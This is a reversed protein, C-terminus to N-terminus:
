VGELNPKMMKMMKMKHIKKNCFFKPDIKRSGLSPFWLSKEPDWHDFDILQKPSIKDGCASAATGRFRHLIILPIITLRKFDKLTINLILIDVYLSGHVCTQLFKM